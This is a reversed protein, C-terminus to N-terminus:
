VGHRSLNSLTRPNGMTNIAFRDNNLVLIELGRDAGQPKQESAMQMYTDIYPSDKLNKCRRPKEKIKM